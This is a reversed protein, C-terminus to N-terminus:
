FDVKRALGYEMLLYRSFQEETLVSCVIKEMDLQGMSSCYECSFNPTANYENSEIVWPERKCKSCYVMYALGM